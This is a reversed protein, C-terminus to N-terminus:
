SSPMEIQLPTLDLRKNFFEAPKKDRCFSIEGLIPLNTFRRIEDVLGEQIVDYHSSQNFIIGAVEIGHREACGLTLLTHNITGLKTGTVIIAPINLTRILDTVMERENLPVMLGGISEVLVLDYKKSLINFSRKIRDFSVEIGEMRTAISPAAPLSFRYPNIIDLEDDVGAAERLLLSDLPQLIGGEKPCGTEVPKMVGLNIGKDKLSAAIGCAVFTKGIGTDTGTIFFGKSM